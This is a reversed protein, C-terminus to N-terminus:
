VLLNPSLLLFMCVFNVVVFAWHVPHFSPRHCHRASKAAESFSGKPWLVQLWLKQWSPEIISQIYLHCQRTLSLSMATNGPGRPIVPFTRESRNRSLFIFQEEVDSAQSQHHHSHPLGRGWSRYISVGIGTGVVRVGGTPGWCTLATGEEEWHKKRELHCKGWKPEQEATATPLSKQPHTNLSDQQKWRDTFSQM